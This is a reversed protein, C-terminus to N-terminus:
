ARRVLRRMTEQGRIDRRHSGTIKGLDEYHLGEELRREEGGVKGHHAVSYSSNSSHARIGLAKRQSVKDM